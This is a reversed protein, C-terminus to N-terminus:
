RINPMKSKAGYMKNWEEKDTRSNFKLISKRATFGDVSIAFSFFESRSRIFTTCYYRSGSRKGNIPKIKATPNSLNADSELDFNLESYIHKEQIWASFVDDVLFHQSTHAFHWFNVKIREPKRHPERQDKALECVHSFFSSYKTHM